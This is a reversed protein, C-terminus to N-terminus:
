RLLAAGPHSLSTPPPPPLTHSGGDAQTTHLSCGTEGKVAGGEVCGTARPSPLLGTAKHGCAYRGPLAARSAGGPAV